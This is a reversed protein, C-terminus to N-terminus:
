KLHLGPPNFLVKDLIHPVQYKGINRNLSPDNVKIFMVETMTKRGVISFNKLKTCHGSTNAHNYIPSPTKFHEKLREGFTRASDAISRM